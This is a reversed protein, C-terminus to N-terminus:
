LWTSSLAGSCGALGARAGCTCRGQVCRLRCVLTTRKWLAGEKKISEGPAMELAFYERRGTLADCLPEACARYLAGDIPARRLSPAHPLHRHPTDSVRGLRNLRRNCPSWHGRQESRRIGLSRAEHHTAGAGIIPHGSRTPLLPHRSMSRDIVRREGHRTAFHCMRLPSITVSPWGIPPAPRQDTPLGRFWM